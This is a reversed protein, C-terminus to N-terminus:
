AKDWCDALEKAAAAPDPASAIASIVFFGACGTKKLESLDSAIVGGGVVVPVPSVAALETLEAYNRTIIRGYEDM